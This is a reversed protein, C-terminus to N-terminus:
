VLQKMIALKELMNISREVDEISIQQEALRLGDFYKSSVNNYDDKTRLSRNDKNFKMDVIPYLNNYRSSTLIDEAFLNIHKDTMINYFNVEENVVEKSILTVINGNSNFTTTGVPTNNTMPYTFEGREVNFIRHQGITKLITGDSFELRNYSHTKQPKKIWIPKASEFVGLDFDWVLLEDDYIIDEINKYSNNNLKIKTGEALCPTLQFTVQNGYATGTSNTAYARVYYTTSYETIGTLTSVFEGSGSGDVTFSDDLTPNPSLSWVVGYETVSSTGEYIVDGGGTAQWYYASTIAATTVIPLGVYDFTQGSVKLWINNAKWYFSTNDWTISGNEGIVDYSSTPVSAVKKLVFDNVYTTNNSYGSLSSGLVITNSGTAFSNSGHVFSTSGSAITNSGGAHSGVGIAKTASGESHSNMGLATTNYGESHSFYGLAKTTDGESHSKIGNNITAYISNLNNIDAINTMNATSDSLYIYTDPEFYYVGEVQYTSTHGCYFGYIFGSNFESTYDVGSITIVGTSVSDISIGKWGAITKNGEAHSYDGITISNVGEAHSYSSSATTGSGEAHSIYGSATTFNGEAHSYDGLATTSNGEAHASTGGALSLHGEVHSTQGSAITNTGESHSGDGSAITTGGEAHAFNGSATTSNGETHTQGGSATTNNGEAHASHGLAMSQYGEAHSTNSVATTQYGETHSNIGIAITSSGEAHSSHGISNTALENILDNLQVFYCGSNTNLNTNSLQIQTNTGSSFTIDSIISVHAGMDDYYDYDDVYAYQGISFKSSIDGYSIFLTVLGNVISNSTDGNFALAGAYSSDGEAHSSVGASVSDNGEAHSGHNGYAITGAGEAHSSGGMATTAGGEAHSSAGSAVTLEGEAHSALGGATTNLGESISSTGIASNTSNNLVGSNMGYGYVWVSDTSGSSNTSIYGTLGSLTIILTEGSAVIPIINDGSPSSNINLQSIKENPM